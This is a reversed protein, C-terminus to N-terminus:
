FGSSFDLLELKLGIKTDSSAQELDSLSCVTGAGINLSPFDQRLTAIMEAAGDTNMTVEMTGLGAAEYAGAIQLTTALPIGRLIGVLPAEYFKPWSFLTKPNM